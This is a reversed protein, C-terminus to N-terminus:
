SLGFRDSPVPGPFTTNGGSQASGSGTLQAALRVLEPVSRAELKEMISHRHAKITRETAGLQSAIQKNTKGQVVLEFVQRERPTLMAMQNTIAEKRQTEAMTAEHRKIARAIVRLLENSAVPKILFDEADAKIAQVTTAVDEHATLYVIPLTCGLEGLRRQLEPGSLTPMRVDLLICGAHNESPHEELLEAASSYTRVEYDAYVLRRGIATRFSADDDVVYVVGPLQRDWSTRLFRILFNM